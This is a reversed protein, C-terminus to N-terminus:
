KWKNGGFGQLQHGEECKHIRDASAENNHSQDCQKRCLPCMEDCGLTKTKM